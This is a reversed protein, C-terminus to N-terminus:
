CVRSRKKEHLSKTIRRKYVIKFANCTSSHVSSSYLSLFPSKFNSNFLSKGDWGKKGATSCCPNVGASTSCCSDACCWRSLFRRRLVMHDSLLMWCSRAVTKITSSLSSFLRHVINISEPNIPRPGINEFVITVANLVKSHVLSSHVSGASVAMLMPFAMARTWRYLALCNETGNM